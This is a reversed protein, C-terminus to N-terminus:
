KNKMSFIDEAVFIILIVIVRYRTSVHSHFAYTCISQDHVSPKIAVAELVCLSSPLLQISLYHLLINSPLQAM